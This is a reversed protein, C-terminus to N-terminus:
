IKIISIFIVQVTGIRVLIKLEFTPVLHITFLGKANGELYSCVIYRCLGRVFASYFTNRSLSADKTFSFKLEFKSPVYEKDFVDEFDVGLVDLIAKITYSRPSVDGAEIRQITRVNINCQEVLEEQTLGKLKRLELIKKGLDPQKMIHKNKFEM